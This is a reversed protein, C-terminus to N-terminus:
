RKSKIPEIKPQAANTNPKSVPFSSYCLTEGSHAAL